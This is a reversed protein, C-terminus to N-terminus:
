VVAEPAARLRAADRGPPAGYLRAYERSFQSPSDYGVAFGAGAVDSAQALLLARAEQLRIHKQYRLPSMATVAKFHRHFSTESMGAMRALPAIRMPRAYNERLWALARNIQALRSDPSGIQRVMEAHEGALLRWILEREIMPRLVAADQPRDALRLLRVVPDLLDDDLGSVALGHLAAVTDGAFAGTEALLGAVRAPDLRLGIATYPAEIVAGSVPLDASVVLYQGQRYILSQGNLETRKAGQLVMCLLPEYMVQAPPTTTESHYLWLGPLPEAPGDERGDERVQGRVLDLLDHM